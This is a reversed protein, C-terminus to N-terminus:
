LILSLAASITQEKTKATGSGNAQEFGLSMPLGTFLSFGLNLGFVMEDYKEAHGSIAKTQNAGFYLGVKEDFGGMWSSEFNLRYDLKEGYATVGNADSKLIKPSRKVGLEFLMRNELPGIAYGLGLDEEIWKTTALDSGNEQVYHVGFATQIDLLVSQWGLDVSARNAKEDVGIKAQDGRYGIGFDGLSEFRYGVQVSAQTRKTTLKSEGVPEQVSTFDNKDQVVGALTGYWGLGQYGLLVHTRGRKNKSSYGSGSVKSDVMKQDVSFIYENPLALRLAPNSDSVEHFISQTSFEAQSPSSRFMVVALMVFLFSKRKWFVVAVLSAILLWLGFKLGLVTVYIAARVVGMMGPNQRLKYAYEPSWSYYWAVFKRGLHNTLLYQDRFNRLYQVQDNMYSGYAATAIFCNVSSAKTAAICGEGIGADYNTVATRFNAVYGFNENVQSIADSYERVGFEVGNTKFRPDSFRGIATCALGLSDCHNPYAMIDYQKNFLDVYGFGAGYNVSVEQASLGEQFRDHQLGLNHGLEHAMTKASCLIAVINVAKVDNYGGIPNTHAKGCTSNNYLAMQIIDAGHTDRLTHLNDLCGDLWSYVCGLDTNFDGTEAYTVPEIHVIRFRFRACSDELMQNVEAMRVILVSEANPNFALVDDTYALLVDIFSDTSKTTVAATTHIGGDRGPPEKVVDDEDTLEQSEMLIYGDQTQLLTYSKGGTQVEMARDNEDKPNVAIAVRGLPDNAISGLWIQRGTMETTKTHIAQIKIGDSLTFEMSASSLIENHSLRVDVRHARIGKSQLSSIENQSTFEFLEKANAVEILSFILIFYIAALFRFYHM